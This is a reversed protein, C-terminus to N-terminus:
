ASNTPPEPRARATICEVEPAHLAYLKNKDKTRQALIRGTRALLDGVKAKSQEPLRQVRGVRTLSSPDIPADTPLYLEDCFYQRYPHRGLHQGRSRRFRRLRAAPVAPRRAPSCALLRAPLAPRDRRAGVTREIEAWDILGAQCVLPHRVNILEDLRSVFLEDSEPTVPKPGM